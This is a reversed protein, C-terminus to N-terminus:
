AEPAAIGLQVALVAAQARREVGLKTFLMSLQNRVTKESLHLREAMQRNTCGETLLGLLSRERPTLSPVDVSTAGAGEVSAEVAALRPVDGGLGHARVLSRAGGLATRAEATDGAAISAEAADLWAAVALRPRPARTAAVAAARSHVAAQSPEGGHRLRLGRILEVVAVIGPGPEPVMSAAEALLQDVAALDGADAAIRAAIALADPRTPELVGGAWGDLDDIAARARDHDGLAVHAEIVQLLVGSFADPGAAKRHPLLPALRELARAPAGRALDIGALPIAAVAVVTPDEHDLLPEVLDAAEDLDGTLTLVAGLHIQQFAGPVSGPGREAAAVAARAHLLADLPDGTALAIRSLARLQVAEDIPDDRDVAQRRLEEHTARSDDPRGALLLALAAVGLADRDGADRAADTALRALSSAGPARHRAAREADAALRGPSGDRLETSGMISRRVYALESHQWVRVAADVDGRARHAAEADRAWREALGPRGTSAAACAARELTAADLAAGARQGALFHAAANAPDGRRLADDGAGVFFARAARRDGAQELLTAITPTCPDQAVMWCRALQRQHAARRRAPLEARVVEALVPPHLTLGDPGAVALGADRVALAEARPTGAELVDVPTPGPAVALLEVLDRRAPSLAGLTRRVQQSAASPLPDAPDLLLAEVLAPLGGTRRHVEAALAVDDTGITAAVLGRVAASTLPAVPVEVTAPRHTVRRLGGGGPRDGARVVVVALEVTGADMQDALEDLVGEDAADADDVLVAVPRRGAPRTGSGAFRPPATARVEWTPALADGADDLLATRGSGGPGSIVVVRPWAATARAAARRIEARARGRELLAGLGADDSVPGHRPTM